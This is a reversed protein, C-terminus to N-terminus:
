WILTMLFAVLGFFLCAPILLRYLKGWDAHFYELTLVLCLHVPSLFAGVLGWGYALSVMSLQIPNGFLGMLLPFTVGVFAPTVGTLLGVFFPLFTILFLDPVGASQFFSTLQQVAGSQTLTDKFIFVGFVLFVINLSFSERMMRWLDDGKWGRKRAAWLFLLLLVLLLSLVLDVQFILVLIMVLIVPLLAFFLRTLDARRNKDAPTTPGLKSGAFALPIGAALAALTLPVNYLLLSGIPIMLIGSALIIGPYIPVVPEMIHRFWYNIFAKRAPSFELDRGAEAVLPASFRAGGASPLFGLFAPLFAMVLRRDRVLRKLSAVMQELLGTKRLTAELFQILVLAGVLSLTAPAIASFFAVKLWPWLGMSFLLSLLFAGILMILGLNWRRAILFIVLLFVSLVKLFDIM